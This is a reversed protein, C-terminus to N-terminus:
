ASGRLFRVLGFFEVPGGHDAAVEALRLRRANSIAVSNPRAHEAVQYFLHGAASLWLEV